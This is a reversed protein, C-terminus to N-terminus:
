QAKQSAPMKAKLTPIIIRTPISAMISYRKKFAYPRNEVQRKLQMGTYKLVSLFSNQRTYHNRFVTTNM